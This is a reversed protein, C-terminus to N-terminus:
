KFFFHPPKLGQKEKPHNNTTEHTRRPTVYACEIEDEDKQTM